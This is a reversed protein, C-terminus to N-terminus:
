FLNNTTEPFITADYPMEAHDIDFQDVSDGDKEDIAYNNDKNMSFKKMNYVMNDRKWLEVNENLEFKHMDIYQYIHGLRLQRLM